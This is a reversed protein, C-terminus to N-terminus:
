SDNGIVSNFGKAFISDCKESAVPIKDVEAHKRKARENDPGENTVAQEGNFEGGRISRGVHFNEDRPFDNPLKGYRCENEFDFRDSVDDDDIEGDDFQWSREDRGRGSIQSFDSCFVSQDVICKSRQRKSSDCDRFYIDPEESSESSGCHHQASKIPDNAHLLTPVEDIGRPVL